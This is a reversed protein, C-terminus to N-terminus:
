APFIFLIAVRLVFSYGLRKRRLRVSWTSIERPVVPDRLRLGRTYVPLIVSNPSRHFLVM